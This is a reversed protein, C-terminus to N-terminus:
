PVAALAAFSPALQTYLNRYVDFLAAYRAAHQTQPEYTIQAHTLDIQTLDDLLGVGKAALLADGLPAGANDELVTLPYGSIDAILQCWLASRTPGGVARAETIPSGVEAALRINHAIAFATGELVARAMEAQGTGGAGLMFWMPAYVADVAANRATRGANVAMRGAAQGFGSNAIGRAIGKGAYGVFEGIM